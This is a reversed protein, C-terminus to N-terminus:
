DRNITFSCTIYKVPTPPTFTVDGIITNKPSDMAWLPLSPAVDNEGLTKLQELHKERFNKAKNTVKNCWIWKIKTWLSMTNWALESKVIPPSCSYNKVIGQVANSIRDLTDHTIKEGVFSQLCKEIDDTNM